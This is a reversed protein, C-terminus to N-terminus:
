KLQCLFIQAILYPRREQFYALIVCAYMSMFVLREEEKTQRVSQYKGVMLSFYVLPHALFWTNTM